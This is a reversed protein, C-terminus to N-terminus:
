AASRLMKREYFDWLANLVIALSENARTLAKWDRHLLTYLQRHEVVVMRFVTYGERGAAGVIAADVDKVGQPTDMRRRYASIASKIDYHVLKLRVLREVEPEDADFRKVTESIIEPALECITKHALDASVNFWEGHRHHERLHKHVAREIQEAAAYPVSVTKHVILKDPCGIQLEALRRAMNHAVGVKVPNDTVGVVYIVRKAM